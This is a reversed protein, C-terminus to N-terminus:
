LNKPFRRNPIGTRINNRNDTFEKIFANKPWFNPKNIGDFIDSRVSIKFSSYTNRENKFKHCKIYADAQFSFVNKIYSVIDDCSHSPDLRSVFLHKLKPVAKLTFLSNVASISAENNSIFFSNSSGPLHLDNESPFNIARPINPIDSTIGDNSNNNNKNNNNNNTSNNNNKNKHKNYKNNNKNNKINNNNPNKKNKNKNNLLKDNNDSLNNNNKNEIITINGVSDNIDYTDNDNHVIAYEFSNNNARKPSPIPSISPNKRKSSKTTTSINHNDLVPQNVSVEIDTNECISDFDIKLEFFKNFLLNMDDKLSSIKNLIILKNNILKYCNVCNWTLGPINNNLDIATVDKLNVCCDHFLKECPGCCKVVNNNGNKFKCHENLSCKILNNVSAM